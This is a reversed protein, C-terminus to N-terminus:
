DHTVESWRHLAALWLFAPLRLDDPTEVSSSHKMIAERLSKFHEYLQHRASDELLMRNLPTARARKLDPEQSLASGVMGISFAATSACAAGLCEARDQNLALQKLQNSFEIAADTLRVREHIRTLFGREQLIRLSSDIDQSFPAGLETGVFSYGWDSIARQRYLWLLCALYAFLHLEPGTFSGAEEQLWGALFLSDFTADPNLPM